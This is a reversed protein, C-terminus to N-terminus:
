SPTTKYALAVIGLILLSLMWFDTLYGFHLTFQYWLSILSYIAFFVGFMTVGAAVLEKGYSKKRNVLYCGAAMVAGAILLTLVSNAAGVSAQVSAEKPGLPVLTDVWLLLYKCWLGLVVLSAAVSPWKIILHPKQLNKM